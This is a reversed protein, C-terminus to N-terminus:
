RDRTGYFMFVRVCAEMDLSDAKITLSQCPIQAFRLLKAVLDKIGARHVVYALDGNRVVDKQLLATKRRGLPLYHLGVRCDSGLYQLMAFRRVEFHAHLNGEIMM